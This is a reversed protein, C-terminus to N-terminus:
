YGTSPTFVVTRSRGTASNSATVAALEARLSGLARLRDGESRSQVESGDANRVAADGIVAQALVADIDAQIQEATRAM